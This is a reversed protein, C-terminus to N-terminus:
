ASLPKWIAMLPRLPMRLLPSRRWGRTKVDTVIPVSPLAKRLAHGGHLGGALILPTGAKPWDVVAREPLAATELAAGTFALDLSLRVIPKMPLYRPHPPNGM